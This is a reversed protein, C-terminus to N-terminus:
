LISVLRSLSYRDIRTLTDERTARRLRSEIARNMVHLRKHSEKTLQLADIFALRLRQMSEADRAIFRGPARVLLEDVNLTQGHGDGIRDKLHFFDEIAEMRTTITNEDHVAIDFAVLLLAYCARHQDDCRKNAIESRLFRLQTLAKMIAFLPNRLNRETASRLQSWTDGAETSQELPLPDVLELDRKASVELPRPPSGEDSRSNRTM